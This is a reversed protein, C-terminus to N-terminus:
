PLNFELQDPAVNAGATRLSRPLLLESCWMECPCNLSLARPSLGLLSTVSYGGNNRQITRPILTWEVKEFSFFAPKKWSTQMDSRLNIKDMTLQKMMAHM